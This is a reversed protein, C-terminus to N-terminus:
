GLQQEIASIDQALTEAQHKVLDSNTGEVMVRLLPETGSARLVVRGNDKLVDDLAQVAALVRSDQVLRAADQTKLNVM